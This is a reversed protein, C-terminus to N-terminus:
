RWKRSELVKVTLYLWFITASLYLVLDRLALRGQLANQWLEVFSLHSLIPQLASDEPFFGQVFYILFLAFMFVFSFVAATLQNKTLSSFFVGMSVFAAGTFLLAISFGVVPRYDFESGGWHRLSVLFLGWPLWVALFLVLAALFKSLVVVTEEVPATLMMELTGTRHEESFLRMTLVPVFMLVSIMPEWGIVYFALIPEQRTPPKEGWMSVPYLFNLTFKLFIYAGLVTFALLVFYALPSFFLSGLERRTLVVVQRDSLYAASLLLYLLGGGMLLLGAPMVYPAAGPTIAHIRELVPPLYSRGLAILFFVFGVLGVGLAAWHGLDDTIGRMSIFAWLFVFGLPVLVVGFPILFRLDITGGLFGTLALAAGAGGVVYVAIDRMRAETENRVFAMTFLLGLVLCFLGYPLFLAGTAAAEMGALKYPVLALAAGVALWLFGFYMYARRIQQDADNAAHFLLGGLGAFTLFTGLVPGIINTRGSAYVILSVGGLVVLALGFAGVWRSWLPAADQVTSPALELPAQWRSPQATDDRKETIAKSSM